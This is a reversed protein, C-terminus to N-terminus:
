KLEHKDFKMKVLFPHTNSKKENNKYNIKFSKITADTVCHFSSSNKTYTLLRFNNKPRLDSGLQM